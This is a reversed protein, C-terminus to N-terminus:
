NGQWSHLCDRRARRGWKRSYMRAWPVPRRSCSPIWTGASFSPSRAGSPRPASKLAKFVAEDGQTRQMQIARDLLNRSKLYDIVLDFLNVHKVRIGERSKPLHDVLFQIHERVRLEDEAPYDFVYFGIENGLGSGSLLEDSILKPLIRNLRETLHGSMHGRHHLSPRLGGRKTGPLKNVETTIHPRQLLMSRTDNIYGAQALIQFISSGMRRATSEHWQPMQPDRGRCDDLFDFWLKKTLVEGFRRYQDRVALDLFDGLLSSHKIAAALVAHTAVVLTGGRVMRWLEPSMTELRQRILRGLRVATAPNRAKLANENGTAQKWGVEDVSRLLLDAVVRSEAIKLSGATIDARYRGSVVIHVGQQRDHQDLLTKSMDPTPLYYGERSDLRALVADKGFSNRSEAKRTGTM